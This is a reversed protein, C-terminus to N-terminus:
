QKKLRYAYSGDSKVLILSDGKFQATYSGNLLLGWNFNATHALSDVFVVQNSNVTFSGKTGLPLIGSTSSAKYTGGSLQVNFDTPGPQGDKSVLRGTYNGQLQQTTVSDKKCGTAIGACFLLVLLSHAKM